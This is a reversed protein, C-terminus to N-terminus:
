KAREFDIRMRLPPQVVIPAFQYAPKQFELAIREIAHTKIVRCNLHDEQWRRKDDILEADDFGKFTFSEM